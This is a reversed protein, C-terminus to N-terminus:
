NDHPCAGGLREVVFGDGAKDFSLDYAFVTGLEDWRKSDLIRAFLSLSRTIEREDLLIQMDTM